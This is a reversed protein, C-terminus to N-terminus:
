EGQVKNIIEELYETITKDDDKPSLADSYLVCQGGKSEPKLQQYVFELAELLEPAASILRAKSEIGASIGELEERGKLVIGTYSGVHMGDVYVNTGTEGRTGTLVERTINWNGNKM